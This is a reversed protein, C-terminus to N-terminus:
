FKMILILLNLLTPFFCVKVASTGSFKELSTEVKHIRVDKIDEILSRVMYMDPIDDRTYDFLLRSIEVYHLPLAQFAGQSDREGELVRTLNEVSM